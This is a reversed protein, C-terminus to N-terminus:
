KILIKRQSKLLDEESLSNLGLTKRYKSRLLFYENNNQGKEAEIAQTITKEADLINGSDCLLQAKFYLYKHYNPRMKLAENITEIAKYNNILSLTYSKEYYLDAKEPYTKLLLDIELLRLDYSLSHIKQKCVLPIGFTKEDNIDIILNKIINKQSESTKKNLLLNNLLQYAKGYEGFFVYLTGLKLLSNPELNNLNKEYFVYQEKKYNYFQEFSIEKSDLKSILEKESIESTKNFFFYVFLSILLITISFFFYFRKKKIINSYM